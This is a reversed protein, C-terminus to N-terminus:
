KEESFAGASPPEVLAAADSESTEPRTDGEQLALPQGFARLLVLTVFGSLTGALLNPVLRAAPFLYVEARGGLLLVLVLETTTRAIGALFGLSCFVIASQPLRRTVPRALDFVLGPALHKLIELVGYRGDGQLFGILGMISGAATGGWRSSTLQSALMYLPFLLLTKHGSAFPVGPLFKLMKLSVMLLSVGAIIAVDHALRSDLRGEYEAEVQDAARVLNGRISDIFVGVDGRLLRRLLAFFGVPQATDSEESVNTQPMKRVADAGRDQRRIRGGLMALTQDLSYVFLSPLRFARLGDVLDTGRGTLRVVASALVLTLIQLCMLAAQEFGALHIPILPSVWPIHWYAVEDEASGGETPLLSYCAILFIMLWKLRLVPRVIEPLAVRNSLLVAAQIALLGPMIYWRYPRTAHFAPLAFTVVAIALLYLIKGVALWTRQGQPQENSIKSV